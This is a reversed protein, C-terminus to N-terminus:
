SGLGSVRENKSIVIEFKKNQCQGRVDGGDNKIETYLMAAKKKGLSFLFFILYFKWLGREDSLWIGSDPKQLKRIEKRIKRISIHNYQEM